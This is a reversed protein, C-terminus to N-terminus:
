LAKMSNLMMQYTQLYDVRTKVGTDYSLSLVVMGLDVYADLQDSSLIMPLDNKTVGELFDQLGLENEVWDSLSESVSKTIISLRFGEGTQADFIWESDVTEVDWVSPYYMQFEFGSASGVFPTIVGSEALTGPATGNPNYRHFVENGDLFGDSDTDPLRPNTGYVLNEEVDSLGDSDTDTGPTVATEFPEPEPETAEEPEPKSEPEPAPRSTSVETTQEVVIEEEDAQNLFIYGGFGLLLVMVIGGSILIGKTSTSMGPKKKVPPAPPRPPAKPPTPPAIFQIPKKEPAKPEVMKAEAGHRYREPMAFIQAGFPLKTKQSPSEIQSKQLETM